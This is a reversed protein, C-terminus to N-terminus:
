ETITQSLRLNLQYVYEAWEDYSEFVLVDVGNYLSFQCQVINGDKDIPQGTSNAPYIIM